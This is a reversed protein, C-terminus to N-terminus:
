TALYGGKDLCECCRAVIRFCLLDPIQLRKPAQQFYVIEPDIGVSVGHHLNEEADVRDPKQV